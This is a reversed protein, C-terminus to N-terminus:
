RPISAVEPVFSVKRYNDELVLSKKYYDSNPLSSVKYEKKPVLSVEPISSVKYEKKPVLPVESVYSVKKRNDESLSPKQYYDNQCLLCRPNKNLYWPYM